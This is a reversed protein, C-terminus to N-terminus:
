HLLGCRKQIHLATSIIRIAVLRTIWGDGTEEHYTSCRGLTDTEHRFLHSRRSRRHHTREAVPGLKGHLIEPRRTLLVAVLAHHSFLPWPPRSDVLREMPTEAHKTAHPARSASSLKHQITSYHQLGLLHFATSYNVIDSVRTKM